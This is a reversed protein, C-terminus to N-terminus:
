EGKGKLYVMESREISRVHGVKDWSVKRPMNRPTNKRQIALHCKFTLENLLLGMMGKNTDGKWVM